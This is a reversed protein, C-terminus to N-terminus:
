ALTWFSTSKKYPGYNPAHEYVGKWDWKSRVLIATSVVYASHEPADIAGYLVCDGVRVSGTRIYSGDEIYKYPNEMWYPNSTSQSYWAYSHCNYKPSADSIRTARPFEAELEAIVEDRFNPDDIELIDHWTCDKKVPVVSGRPTFVYDPTSNPSPNSVDLNFTYLATMIKERKYSDYDTSNHEDLQEISMKTELVNQLDRRNLLEALGNFYESVALLGKNLSGHMFIDMQMPYNLVSELLAETTMKCLMTDPIQCAAVMDDNNTFNYWEPDDPSVPYEYPFNITYGEEPLAAAFSTISLNLSLLIVFLFSFIKKVQM